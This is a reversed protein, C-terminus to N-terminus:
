IAKGERIFFAKIHEYLVEIQFIIMAIGALPIPFYMWFRSVSPMSVYTGRGGITNAYRWGVVLMVFGLILVGIDALVDLSKILNKNLYPDLATMRIHTGKRIAIAASLVAMYSMCSLVVEDSWAPDPIFSVYRGTVSVCTIIIDTILLLKCLFLVVKHTIDFAPKVKDIIAFIRPMFSDRRLNSFLAGPIGRCGKAQLAM